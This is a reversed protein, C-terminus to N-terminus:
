APPAASAAVWAAEGRLRPGAVFAEIKAALAAIDSDPANFKRANAIILAVDSLWGGLSM